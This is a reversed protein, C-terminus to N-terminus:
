SVGVIDQWRQEIDRKVADPVDPRLRLRPEADTPLTADFGIKTITRGVSMPDVPNSKAGQVMVLDQHARMRTAVAWEVERPDHVDIDDDVVIVHKILDQASLAALIALKGEGPVRKKIALVAHFRCNGGESLLAQQLGPVVAKVTRYLTAERGLAGTILHEPHSGGVIMQFIPSRRHTIATLHMVPNHRAPAYTGPIEGFPGEEALEAPDIVGELVIEAEAPVELDVTRCRALWAPAGFLGGAVEFEDYPVLMQSAALLVPHNGIAVAIDMSRGLEKYTQLFQFSHTPAMYIGLTSGDQVQLRCIALNRRGSIPDRVIVLGASIYRGGDHESIHPIPLAAAIDLDATHVVEQCRGTDAVEPAVRNDLSAVVRAQLQEPAVGLAVALKDRSNLVNGVIPIDYGEIREFLVAPGHALRWLVAAAEYRWHITEGVRLLKGAAEYADLASRLDQPM